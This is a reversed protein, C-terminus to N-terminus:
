SCVMNRKSHKPKLFLHNNIKRALNKCFLVCQLSCVLGVSFRTDAECIFSRHGLQTVHKSILM